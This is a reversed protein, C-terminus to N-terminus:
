KKSEVVGLFLSIFEEGDMKKSKWGGALLKSRPLYGYNMMSTGNTFVRNTMPCKLILSLRFLFEKLPYFVRNIKSKNGYKREFQIKFGKKLGTKSYGEEKFSREFGLRKLLFNLKRLDRMSFNKICISWRQGPIYQKITVIEM